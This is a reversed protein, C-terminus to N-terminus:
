HSSNLRTSKRDRGADLRVSADLRGADMRTELGQDPRYNHPDVCAGEVCVRPERCDVDRQCGSPKNESCSLFAALGIGVLSRYLTSIM